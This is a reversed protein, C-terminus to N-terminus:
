KGGKLTHKGMQMGYNKIKGRRDKNKEKERRKRIKKVLYSVVKTSKGVSVPTPAYKGNYLSGYTYV